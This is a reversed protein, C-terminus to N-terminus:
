PAASVTSGSYQDVIEFFNALLRRGDAKEEDFNEPHFQTGFLPQDEHAVAQIPSIANKALVQFGLPLEKVEWYHAQFFVPDEVLGDFLPHPGTSHVPLFGREQVMGPVYGPLDLGAYPDPADEALPGMPGLQAGYAQMMLQMGACFGLIPWSAVQYVSFLGALDAPDYYEFDTYGGSVLVARTPLKNLLDLSLKEYRVILCDDGSIAELRYKVMLRNAMVHQWLKQNAQLRPNELDVYIIM